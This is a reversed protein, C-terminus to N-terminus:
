FPNANQARPLLKSPSSQDLFSGSEETLFPQPLPNPTIWGGSAPRMWCSGGLSQFWVQAEKFVVLICHHTPLLPCLLM